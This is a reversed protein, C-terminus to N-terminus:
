TNRGEAALYRSRKANLAEVYSEDFEHLVLTASGRQAALDPKEQLVELAILAAGLLSPSLGTITVVRYHGLTSVLAPLLGGNMNNVLWVVTATTASSALVDLCRLVEFAIGEYLALAIDGQSSGLGLSSIAASLDTRWLAGQEGGALYPTFLVPNAAKDEVAWALAELDRPSINFLNALWDISSGTALLDMEVGRRAGDVLPTVLLKPHAARREDAGSLIVTSSGDVIAIARDFNEEVYHFAAVSDAAGLVVPIQDAALGALVVEGSPSLLASSNSAEVSPLLQANLGWLSNLEESFHQTSLEYNGFGSATSPDTWKRGTLVHFIYDKASLLAAPEPLGALRRQLYMPILYRGDIPAGAIENIRSRSTASLRDTVLGEARSDQWTVARGIVHGKEDLEVLTPMQATLVVADIRIDPRAQRVDEWARAIASIWEEPRQEAMDAQEVYTPYHATASNLVELQDSVVGLKVRSTGLDISLIHRTV